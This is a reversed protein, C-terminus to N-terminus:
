HGTAGKIKDNNWHGLSLSTVNRKQVILSSIQDRISIVVVTLGGRGQNTSSNTLVPCGLDELDLYPLGLNDFLLKEQIGGKYAVVLREPTSFKGHLEMVFDALMSVPLSHEHKGPKFSLRHVHDIAYCVTRQDNKSLDRWRLGHDVHTNGSM